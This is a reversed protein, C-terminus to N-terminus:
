RIDYLCLLAAWGSPLPRLRHTPASYQVAMELFYKAHLFATTIPLTADIWRANDETTFERGTGNRLIKEFIDCFATGEPSVERLAAAIQTTADQLDFVKFSGYFFRYMRDEYVWPDNVQELLAKLKDSSRRLNELLVHELREREDLSKVDPIAVTSIKTLGHNRVLVECYSLVGAGRLM